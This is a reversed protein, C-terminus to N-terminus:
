ASSGDRLGNRAEPRCSCAGAGSGGTFGSSSSAKTGRCQARRGRPTSCRQLPGRRGPSKASATVRAASASPTSITTTFM